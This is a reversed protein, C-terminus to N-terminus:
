LITHSSLPQPRSGCKWFSHGRELSRAALCGGSELAFDALPNRSVDGGASGTCVVASQSRVDAATHVM